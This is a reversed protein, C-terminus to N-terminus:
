WERWNDVFDTDADLGVIDGMKYLADCLGEREETEITSEINEDEDIDNLKNVSEEFKSLIIEETSGEPLEILEERLRNLEAILHPELDEYCFPLFDKFNLQSLENKKM